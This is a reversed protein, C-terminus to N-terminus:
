NTEEIEAEEIDFPVSKGINEYCFYNGSVEIFNDKETMSVEQKIIQTHQTESHSKIAYETMAMLEAQAKSMTIEKEDEYTTYIRYNIGFPLEKGNIKLRSRHIYCDGKDKPPFIEAGLFFISWVKKEEPTCVTIKKDTESKVKINTKAVAYGDADTFLNTQLRSETIGSILLDGELVPQGIGVAASGRYVELIEIQGDKSAIINSTGHHTEIEPTKKLERIKIEATCGHISIAAWSANGLKQMASSEIQAFKLNNIRKGIKLGSEEFAELVESDTLHENGSVEIIWVHGTLLVLILFAVIFGSILATRRSYRNIFFPLGQKHKIRVKMSSKRAPSRIRRYGKATTKASILGDKKVVDWLPINNVTCSNIFRESFGNEATFEVCGFVFNLIDRSVM